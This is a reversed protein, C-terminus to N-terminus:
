GLAFCLLFCAGVVCNCTCACSMCAALTCGTKGNGLPRVSEDREAVDSAYTVVVNDSFRVEARTLMPAQEPGRVAPGTARIRQTRTQSPLTHTADTDLLEELSLPRGHPREDGDQAHNRRMGHEPAHAGDTADQYPNSMPSVVIIDSDQDEHRKQRRLARFEGFRSKRGAASPSTDHKGLLEALSSACLQAHGPDSPASSPLKDGVQRSLQSRMTASVRMLIRRADTPFMDTIHTFAKKGTNRVDVSPDNLAKVTLDVICAVHTDVADKARETLMQALLSACCHRMPVHTDTMGKGLEQLLVAPQVWKAITHICERCWVPTLPRRTCLSTSLPPSRECHPM